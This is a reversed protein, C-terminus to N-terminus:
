IKRFHIKGKDEFVCLLKEDALILTEIYSGTGVTTESGSSLYKIKLDAGDKWSIVSNTVGSIRCNRGQGIQVEPKSPQAYFINGDRQWATHIMHQSDLLIGGGDMPCGELKWTGTGLKLPQDFSKGGDTSRTMYFDRAGDLWNRFMLVVQNGMVDISPKCCECVTKDPSEYVIKNSSWSDAEGSTSAFVIKNQKGDRVDLWVAYFNDNEDSDISMLGEPVSGPIDNVGAAKVWTNADPPLRFSHINGKKDIATVMSYNASSAIQPGMSMGLYLGEVQGVLVPESFTEGDDTSTACYISNEHGYVVRITGKSNMAIQPQRGAALYAADDKAEPNSCSISLLIFCVLTILQILKTM